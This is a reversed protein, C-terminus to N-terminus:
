ALVRALFTAVDEVEPMCVEHMMPYSKLEVKWGLEVLKDKSAVGRAHPVMPDQLGHVMLVPLDRNAPSAEAALTDAAVLYSSLGILGALREPHRLAVHIAIAGGQSFGCLVIRRAPIGRSKERAILREVHARATAIGEPDHRSRPDLDRIDYWAPMVMGNNISVPISPAHPLVFRVALEDGLNLAPVIPEFDHGDAGLGHLWIVAARAPHEPEIEVCPLLETSPNEHASAM